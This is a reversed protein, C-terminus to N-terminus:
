VSGWRRRSPKMHEKELACHSTRHARVLMSQDFTAWHIPVLTKGGLDRNAAVAEEPNLHIDPWNENYAMKILRDAGYKKGIEKFQDTMGTDGSSLVRGNRSAVWSCWLTQTLSGAGSFHRAPTAVITIGDFQHEDWWANM